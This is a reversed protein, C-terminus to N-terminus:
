ESLNYCVYNVTDIATSRLFNGVPDLYCKKSNMFTKIEEIAEDSYISNLSMVDGDFPKDVVNALRLLHAIAGESAKVLAWVIDEERHLPFTEMEVGSPM